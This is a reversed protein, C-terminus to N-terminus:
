EDSYCDFSYNLIAKLRSYYNDWTYYEKMLLRANVGIDDFSKDTKDFIQNIIAAMKLHSDEIILHVKNRAGVIPMGGLSTTVVIKELALAELIKNQIGAGTQMPAVVALCSNIIIYPDELFGTIKINKYINALRRIEKPPNIGIIVFDIDDKLLFLVKNIFWLVADSNPKYDMKGLFVISNQYKPDFGSYKFLIENVGNPIWSTKGFQSWYESEVKNVFFTHRYKEICIKEYAFLRKSEILYLYQSLISDVRGSLREYSIALSDVMDLYAPRGFDITYPATRVLTSIALDVHSYNEQIYKKIAPFYFYGVQFPLSSFAYKLINLRCKLKSKYFIKYTTAEGNLFTEAAKNRKEDTIIIVHINYDRKLLRILNYSKLKGGDIPPYPLRSLVLLCSKRM